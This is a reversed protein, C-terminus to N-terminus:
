QISYGAGLKENLVPKTLYIRFAEETGIGFLVLGLRRLDDVLLVQDGKELGALDNAVLAPIWRQGSRTEDIPPGKETLKTPFNSGKDNAVFYQFVKFFPTADFVQKVKIVPYIRGNAISRWYNSLVFNSFNM